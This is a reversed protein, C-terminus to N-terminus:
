SINRVAGTVFTICIFIEILQFFTNFIFVSGIYKRKQLLFTFIINGTAIAKTNLLKCYQIQMKIQVLFIAYLFRHSLKRSEETVASLLTATNRWFANVSLSWSFSKYDSSQNTRDKHIRRFRMAWFYPPMLYQLIWAMNSQNPCIISINLQTM